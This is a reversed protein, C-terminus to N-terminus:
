FQHNKFGYTFNKTPKKLVLYSAGWAILLGIIDSLNHGADAILALSDNLIGFIFEILVFALNLAVGIKFKNNYNGDIHHHHNHDHSM